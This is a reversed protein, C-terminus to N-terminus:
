MGKSENIKADILQDILNATVETIFRGRLETLIRESELTITVPYIQNGDRLIKLIRNINNASLAYPTNMDQKEKIYWGDIWAVIIPSQINYRFIEDGVKIVEGISEYAEKLTKHKM